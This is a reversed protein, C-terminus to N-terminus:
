ELGAGGACDAFDGTQLDAPTPFPPCTGGTDLERDFWMAAPFGGAQNFYVVVDYVHGEEVPIDACFNLSGCATTMKVTAHCTDGSLAPANSDPSTTATLKSGRTGSMDLVATTATQNCLLDNFIRAQSKPAPPCPDPCEPCEPCEPCTIPVPPDGGLFLNQLLYVADSLDMTGDGNVDGNKILPAGAAGAPAWVGWAFLFMASSCLLLRFAGKM